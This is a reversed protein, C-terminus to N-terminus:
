FLYNQYPVYCINAHRSASFWVLIYAAYVAITAIEAIQVSRRSAFLASPLAALIYAQMPVVYFILRHLAVTNILMVPILAFSVLAFLRMLNYENPFMRAMRSTYLEFIAATIVLLGLRFIAGASDMDGYIEEIYRDQYVEARGSLLYAAVPMLIVIAGVVRAFSYSRGVMLALPLLIILSQHFTSGILIYLVVQMRKAHLFADLAGMLFAVALAQRVGSMSLQIVLIPFVLAILLLPRPHNRAFKLLYYFFIGAAFVNLWVYELGAKKTLYSILFFGPETTDFLSDINNFFLYKFRLYYTSFDCGTDLRAGVFIVFFVYLACFLLTKQRNSVNALALLALSMFISVYLIM